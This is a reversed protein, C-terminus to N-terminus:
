GHRPDRTDGSGGTPTVGAGDGGDADPAQWVRRLWTGGVAIVGPWGNRVGAWFRWWGIVALTVGSWGVQWPGNM